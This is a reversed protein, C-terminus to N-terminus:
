AARTASSRASLPLGTSAPGIVSESQGVEISAPAKGTLRWHFHALAYAVNLSISLIAIGYAIAESRPLPLALQLGLQNEAFWRFSFIYMMYIALTYARAQLWSGPKIFFAALTPALLVAITFFVTNPFNLYVFAFNWVDYAIIWGITMGPWLMDHPASEDRRLGMWRSITVINLIGAIANLINPVHGTSFDQSVAEAINVALVVAILVKIWNFRDLGNFRFLTFLAAGAISSYLKAWRFWGDFGAHMWLPILLIPCALFLIYAALKSHRCLENGLFLVVGFFFIFHVWSLWAISPRFSMVASNAMTIQLRSTGVKTLVAGALEDIEGGAEGQVLIRDGQESWHFDERLLRSGTSKEVTLRGDPRFKMDYLLGGGAENAEAGEITGIWRAHNGPVQAICPAAALIALLALFLRM